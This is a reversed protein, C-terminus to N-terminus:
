EEDSQSCGCRKDKSLGAFLDLGLNEEFETVSFPAFDPKKLRRRALPLVVANEWAIHRRRAEFFGRLMYGLMEPNPVRGRTLAEEMQDAAEHAHSEDSAHERSIHELLDANFEGPKARKVLVPYLYHEELVIHRRVCNRLTAIGASAIETDLPEPLADALRELMNCLCMEACHEREIVHLLSGPPAGANPSPSSM